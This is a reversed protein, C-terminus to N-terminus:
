PSILWGVPMNNNAIKYATKNKLDVLLVDNGNEDPRYNAAVVLSSGDPSWVPSPDTVTSIPDFGALICTDTILDTQTNLIALTNTKNVELWLAVHFGDPSWNYYSANIGVNTTRNQDFGPNIRTIQSFKGDYGVILFESDGMMIFKSGDPAWVPPHNFWTNNPILTIKQKKMIDYVIYGSTNNIFGPYVVRTLKPDFVMSGTRGWPTRPYGRDFGPYEPKFTIITRNTFFNYIIVKAPYQDNGPDNPDPEALEIAIQQNDVWRQITGWYKGWGISKNLNGDATYINLVNATLDEYALMERSPSTALNIGRGPIDKFAGTSLDQFSVTHNSGPFHNEFAIVGLYGRNEPLNAQINLCHRIIGTEPSLTPIETPAYPPTIPIQTTTSPASTSRPTSTETLITADIQQVVPTTVSLSTSRSNSKKENASCGVIIFMVISM